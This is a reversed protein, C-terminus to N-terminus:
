NVSRKGSPSVWDHRILAVSLSWSIPRRLNTVIVQGCGEIYVTSHAEPSGLVAADVLQNRLAAVGVQQNGLAVVVLQSDLAVAVLQNGLDVVLQNDPAFVQQNGPVVAVVLRSGQAVVLNGQAVALVLLNGRAVVVLLLNGQDVAMGQVAVLYM